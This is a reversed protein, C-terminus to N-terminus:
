MRRKTYEAGCFPCGTSVDTYTGSELLIYDKSFVYLESSETMISQSLGNPDEEFDKEIIIKQEEESLIHNYPAIDSSDETIIDKQIDGLFVLSNEIILEQSSFSQSSSAINTDRTTDCIFGCYQCRIFRHPADPTYLYRGSKVTRAKM